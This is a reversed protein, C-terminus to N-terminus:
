RLLTSLASGQGSVLRCGNNDNLKGIIDLREGDIVKGITQGYPQDYVDLKKGQVYDVVAKLHNLPLIALQTCTQHWPTM